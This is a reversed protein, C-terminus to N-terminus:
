NFDNAPTAQSLGQLLSQVKVSTALTLYTFQNYSIRYRHHKKIYLDRLAVSTYKQLMSGLLIIVQGIVESEISTHPTLILLLERYDSLNKCLTMARM